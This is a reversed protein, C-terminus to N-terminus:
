WGNLPLPIELFLLFFWVSDSLCAYLDRRDSQTKVTKLCPGDKETKTSADGCICVDTPTYILATSEKESVSSWPAFLLIGTLMLILFVMGSGASPLLPFLLIRHLRKKPLEVFAKRGIVEDELM